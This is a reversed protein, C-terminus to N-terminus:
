RGNKYDKSVSLYSEGYEERLYRRSSARIPMERTVMVYVPRELAVVGPSSPSRWCRNKGHNELEEFWGYAPHDRCSVDYAVLIRELKRRVGSFHNVILGHIDGLEYDERDRSVAKDHQEFGVFHGSYDGSIPLIRETLEEDIKQWVYSVKSGVKVIAILTGAKNPSMGVGFPIDDTIYGSGGIDAHQKYNSWFKSNVISNWLPAIRNERATVGYLHAGDEETTTLIKGDPCTWTMGHAHHTDQGRKARCEHTIAQSLVHLSNQGGIVIEQAEQESLGLAKLHEIAEEKSEDGILEYEYSTEEPPNAQKYFNAADGDFPAKLLDLEGPWREWWLGVYHTYTPQQTLVMCSMNRTEYVRASLDGPIGHNYVARCDGNWVLDYVGVNELLGSQEGLPSFGLSATGWCDWDGYLVAASPWPRSWGGAWFNVIFCQHWQNLCLLPDLSPVMFEGRLESFGRYDGIPGTYFFSLDNRNEVLHDEITRTALRCYYAWHRPMYFVQVKSVGGATARIIRPDIADADFRPEDTVKVTDTDVTDFPAFFIGEPELWDVCYQRTTGNLNFYHGVTKTGVEVLSLGYSGPVVATFLIRNPDTQTKISGGKKTGDVILDPSVDKKPREGKMKTLSARINFLKGTHDWRKDEDRDSDVLVFNLPRRKWRQAYSPDDYESALAEEDILFNNGVYKVIHQDERALYKGCGRIQFSLSGKEEVDGTYLSADVWEEEDDDWFTEADFIEIQVTGLSPLDDNLLTPYVVDQEDEQVATKKKKYLGQISINIKRSM